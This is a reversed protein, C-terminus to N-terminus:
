SVVRRPAVPRCLGYGRFRGAGLLVPGIVPVDFTMTAHTHYRSAGGSKVRLPPFDRAHPAGALLSVPSTVVAVPRPLGIRECALAVLEEADGNRKPYRDLVVPTATAWQRSARTWTIPRLALPSDEGFSARLTMDLLRGNYVRLGGLYAARALPRLADTTDIGRPIALAVGLLHGDAYDHGVDPLALFAVHPESSPSGDERHGTLWQPLESAGASM